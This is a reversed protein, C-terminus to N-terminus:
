LGVASRRASIASRGRSHRMWVATDLVRLLPLDHSPTHEPRVAKIMHRHKEDQLLDHFVRWYTGVPAVHDRIISDYVPILAPRKRALLKSIKTAVVGCGKLAERLLRWASMPAGDFDDMTAKWLELNAPIRDLIASLQRGLEGNLLKRVAYPPYIEGMFTVALLDEPRVRDPDNPRLEMFTRGAFRGEDSM